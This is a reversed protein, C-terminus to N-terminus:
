LELCFRYPLLADNGAYGVGIRPGATIKETRIRVDSEELWIINGSLDTGNLGTTIGLAQSVSGPGSTLIKDPKPKNRRKLMIEVGHTPKIGRILIAHPIDIKNTVINFLHHIGYCLYVYAVGGEAYMIENRSTRRNGYAHSARDNEGAYAEVETIIGGTLQQNILTFINKGLLERSIGLVDDRLYFEKSLKKM